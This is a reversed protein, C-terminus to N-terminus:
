KGIDAGRALRITCVKNGGSSPPAPAHKGEFLGLGLPMNFQVTRSRVFAELRELLLRDLRGSREELSRPLTAELESESKPADGPLPVQVEPDKALSLDEMLPIPADSLLARSLTAVAKLKLCGVLDGTRSCEM